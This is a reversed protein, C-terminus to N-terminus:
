PRFMERFQHQLMVWENLGWLMPILFPLSVYDLNSVGYEELYRVLKGIDRKYAAVTNPSTRKVNTLYEIFNDAYQVMDKLAM